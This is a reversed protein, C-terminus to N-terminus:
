LGAEELLHTLSQIIPLALFEKGKNILDTFGHPEELHYELLRLLDTNTIVGTIKGNRKLPLATVRRKVMMEVVSAIDTSEDVVPLHTKMLRHVKLNRDWIGACDRADLLGKFNDKDLVILHHISLKSMLATADELSADEAITVKEPRMWDWDVENKVEPAKMTEDEYPKLYDYRGGKIAFLLGSLRRPRM